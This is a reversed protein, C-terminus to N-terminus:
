PQGGPFSMVAGGRFSTYSGGTLMVDGTAEVLARPGCLQITGNGASITGGPGLTIYGDGSPPLTSADNLDKFATELPARHGISWALGAVLLAFVINPLAAVKIM